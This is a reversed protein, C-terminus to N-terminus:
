DARPGVVRRLAETLDDGAFLDSGVGVALAGAELWRPVDALAIGGTPVVLTGPAVALLSRLFQPGGVHAPFLKAVGRGAADLVEGITMGGEVLPVRGAAVARVSPVPCPSVLFQAGAALAEEAQGASLVTGMGVVRDPFSSRLQTLARAWGPTTATLEVVPLGAEFCTAAADVAGEASATRLVPLVRAVRLMEVLETTTDAPPM